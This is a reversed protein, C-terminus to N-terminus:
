FPPEGVPPPHWPRGEDPPPGGLSLLISAVVEDHFEDLRKQRAEDTEYEVWGTDLHGEALLNAYVAEALCRREDDTM